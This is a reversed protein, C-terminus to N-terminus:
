QERDTGNPYQTDVDHIFRLVRATFLEPQEVPLMHGADPVLETTVNAILRGARQSARRADNVPSEGCFLLLVPRPIQRLEQDTLRKPLPQKAVFTRLGAVSLELLPPAPLVGNNLRRLLRHLAADSKAMALLSDPVITILFAISGRGLAGVPDVSVISALRDPSRCAQNLALWGGYSLGVLHAGDLELAALVDDLWASFDSGSRVRATQTSRGVDTITDMAYVPHAGGFASISAFWSASSVAVAPLLVIPTGTNSGTSLVHTTGYRTPIDFQTPPTPWAALAADYAATFRQRASEDRFRGLKSTDSM